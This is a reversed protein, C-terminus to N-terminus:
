FKEIGEIGTRSMLVRFRKYNIKGDYQFQILFNIYYIREGNVVEYGGDPSPVALPIEPNDMKLVFNSVNFRFIDNIGAIEYQNNEDLAKGDIRVLKRYLIIKEEAGRNDAELLDSRDRMKMVEEPVRKETIYDVGEKIWGVPNEKISITTKNDFYKRSLRHVFYFRTLEKIRDKLMYSVVLAVFLPITFNGYKQQFSFAITTAFIMSLGAAVSYYVQEALRGDKKRSANLFLHGEAYKNLLRMRFVVARNSDPSNKQIVKFGKSIKYDIEKRVITMLSPSFESYVNEGEKCRLLNLLRYVHYETLNSLFEDGFSFYNLALSPVGPRQLIAELDRYRTTIKEINRIFRNIGERREAEDTIQVVNTAERRLSSRVISTFMKIQYEFDDLNEKSNEVALENFAGELFMFPLAQSDAVESLQYIPTILRINSTVDRYFSNKTYTFSNIGLNNPVFIWTNMMFNNEKLEKRVVYGVKFEVSFRDHIRVQIDIM